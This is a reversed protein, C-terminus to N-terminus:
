LIHFIHMVFFSLIKLDVGLMVMVVKSLFAGRSSRPRTSINNKSETNYPMMEPTSVNGITCASWGTILSGSISIASTIFVIPLWNGTVMRKDKSILLAKSIGIVRNSTSLSGKSPPILLNRTRKLRMKAKCTVATASKRTNMKMILMTRPM